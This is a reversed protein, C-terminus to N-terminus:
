KVKKNTKAIPKQVIKNLQYSISIKYNKTVSANFNELLFNRGYTFSTFQMAQFPDIINFSVVLRKDLLKKQVGLNFSVNSRSKGQPDAFNNYRINGDITLLPNPLFNYHLNINYSGGDRYKYLNKEFENYKNFSYGTSLNMRFKKSFTYGGWLSAEFEKRNSINQWTSETKGADVLTRIINFVNNLYNYGISSNINWKGKILSVNWDFNSALQPELYPNGFRTNYPDNYNVSPNLEGIGPRRITSRYVLSTNLYSNFEKRLTINPMVNWYINSVNTSSGDLFNFQLKTQEAQISTIIKWNKLLPIYFGARITFFNQKFKFDNSLLTNQVMQNLIQNYFSTGLTNHFNNLSISSGTQFIIKSKKFPMDYNLRVNVSSNSNNTTQIQTSDIGNPTYNNNLFQQFFTRDNANKNFNVSTIFQLKEQPNKGKHNFSYSISHNNGVGDTEINRQSLKYIENFRNINKFEIFFNNDYFNKNSNAVFSMNNFKNLEYDFQVRYNPRSNKNLYNGDTKFQNSSDTYYNTRISYNYGSIKNFGMGVIATLTIKKNRYSVNTSINGDGRTGINSNIRGLFGIKGKKTVINIVGGSETAYQPPPNTMLEIKEISSGPLSELLDNLQQATLDTPKDDILIKPEKGKLLIKGNPDNQVLPMNKLLEATTSGASLASEGVNFTIKGDKNEILPKESYVIIDQLETNSNNLKLDGLNFDYREPRLYISDIILKQFGVHSIAIKYLGLPIKDFEFNGNKDSIRKFQILSDSKSTLFISADPIAKLSNAEIINGIILGFYNQSKIQAYNYKSLLVILIVLLTKKM